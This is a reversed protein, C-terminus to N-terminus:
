KERIYRPRPEYEGTPRRRYTEMAEWATTSCEMILSLMMLSSRHEVIGEQLTGEDALVGKDPLIYRRLTPSEEATCPSHYRRGGVGALEAQCPHDKM